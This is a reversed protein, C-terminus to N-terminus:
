HSTASAYRVDMRFDQILACKFQAFASDDNEVDNMYSEFAGSIKELLMGPNVVMVRNEVHVAKEYDYSFQGCNKIRGEHVLGNRFNEYFSKADTEEFCDPMYRLLWKKIRSGTNQSGLAMRALLDITTVCLVGAAFSKKRYNLIRAPVLYFGQIRDRFAEVLIEKRKWDLDIFRYNPSFYLIDEIRV